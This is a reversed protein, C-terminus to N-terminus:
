SIPKLRGRNRENKSCRGAKRFQFDTKSRLFADEFQLTRNEDTLKCRDM